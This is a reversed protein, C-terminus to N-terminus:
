AAPAIAEVVWFALPYDFEGSGDSFQELHREVLAFAEDLHEPPVGMFSLLSVDVVADAPARLTMSHPTARVEAFGAAELVERVYEDDGFAFPGVPSKGPAPTPPAPLMGRLATAVHWPNREVGQWCAFVLRAGPRLLGRIARFAKTPEDFFMVGFQSVAQDFPAGEFADTQVDVRAFRVNAVGADAARRTALEVLPESIDLGVVEGAPGVEAALALALAGGGSGVDCIRQGVQADLTKVLYPTVGDTLQERKPWSGAWGPDNWRQSERENAM